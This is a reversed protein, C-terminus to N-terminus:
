QQFPKSLAVNIAGAENKKLGYGGGVLTQNALKYAHKSRAPKGWVAYTDGLAYFIRSRLVATNGPHASYTLAHRYMQSAKAYNETVQALQGAAFLTNALDRKMTPQYKTLAHYIAIAREHLKQAEAYEQRRVHISALGVLSRAMTADLERAPVDLARVAEIFLSEADKHRHQKTYIEGLACQLAATHPHARGYLSTQIMIAKRYARAANELAGLDANLAGILALTKLTRRKEAPTLAPCMRLSQKACDLAESTMGQTAMHQARLMMFRWSSSPTIDDALAVGQVLLLAGVISVIVQPKM